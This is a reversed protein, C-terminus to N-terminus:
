CRCRPGSVNAQRCFSSLAPSELYKVYVVPALLVVVGLEQRQRAEPMRSLMALAVTAGQSHGVM